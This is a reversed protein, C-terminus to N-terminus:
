GDSANYVVANHSSASATDVFTGLAGAVLSSGAVSLARRRTVSPGSGDDTPPDDATRSATEDASKARDSDIGNDNDSHPSGDHTM